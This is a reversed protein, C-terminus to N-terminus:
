ILINSFIFLYSLYIFLLLGLLLLQLVSNEALCCCLSSLLLQLLLLLTSSSCRLLLMVANYILHANVIYINIFIFTANFLLNQQKWGGHRLLCSTYAYVRPMLHVCVWFVGIFNPLKQAKQACFPMEFELNFAM